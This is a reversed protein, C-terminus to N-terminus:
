VVPTFVDNGSFTLFWGNFCVAIMQLITEDPSILDSEGRYRCANEHRKEGKLIEGSVIYM